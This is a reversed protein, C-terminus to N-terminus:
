LSHSLEKTLYHIILLQWDEVHPTITNENVTPILICKTSLEKAAGGDRGVISIIPCDISRAYGMVNTLNRSITTTGGGVSLVLLMDNAQLHSEALWHQYTVDFGIDNAWATLEAINDSPTYAEIHAIKRFDNVAHSANAASGGNGLIFLRGKRQYLKHLLDLMEAIVQRDLRQAIQHDEDFYAALYDTM